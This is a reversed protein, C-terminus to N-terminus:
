HGESLGIGHRPEGSHKSLDLLREMQREGEVRAPSDEPLREVLRAIRKRVQLAFHPTVPGALSRIDEVTPERGPRLREPNEYESV